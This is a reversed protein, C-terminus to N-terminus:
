PISRAMGAMMVVMVGPLAVVRCLDMLGRRVDLGRRVV